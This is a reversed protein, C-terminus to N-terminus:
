DKLIEELALITYCTVLVPNDEMWRTHVKNVWSGDPNQLSILKSGLEEKWNHKKGKSDNLISEGYAQLSKAMTHYYYFLGQPGLGPNEEVSYNKEIWNYAAKIRPDTRSVNAHIMSKMGAYTMSGYSNQDGAKSVGPGYMFGGDDSSYSEPNASKLNQCRSLFAITRQIYESKDALLKKDAENRTIEIEKKTKEYLAELSWQVNSLDAREKFGYGVGGYYLSDKTYGNAESFQLKMLFQELGTIVEQFKVEEADKFAMLVISSNYNANEDLYIGGDKQRLSLLFDFGNIIFTDQTSFDYPARLFSSLALATIAPYQQWSGNTEQKNKLFILGKRISHEIDKKLSIDIQQGDGSFSRITQFPYASFVTSVFLVTLFLIRKTLKM